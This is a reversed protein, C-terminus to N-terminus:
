TLYIHPCWATEFEDQLYLSVYYPSYAWIRKHRIIPTCIFAHIITTKRILLKKCLDLPLFSAQLYSANVFRSLFVWWDSLSQLSAPSVYYCWLTFSIHKKTNTIKTTSCFFQNSLFIQTFHACHLTRLIRNKLTGHEGWFILWILCSMSLLGMLTMMPCWVFTSCLFSYLLLGMTTALTLFRKYKM